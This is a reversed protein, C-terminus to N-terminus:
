ALGVGAGAFRRFNSPKPDRATRLVVPGVSASSRPEHSKQKVNASAGRTTRNPAGGLFRHRAAEGATSGLMAVKDADSIRPISLIHDVPAINWPFPYDTGM